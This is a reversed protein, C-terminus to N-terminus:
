TARASGSGAICTPSASSIVAALESARRAMGLTHTVNYAPDAVRVFPICVAARVFGHSYPSDFPRQM